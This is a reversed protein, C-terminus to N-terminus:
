RCQPPTHPSWGLSADAETRFAAAAAWNKARAHMDAVIVYDGANAAGLRRLEELAREALDLDGHIRCANLLSRWATDTPGTPMSGILARADDLRGARAMLDVMCGYHQANPAGKHELRM